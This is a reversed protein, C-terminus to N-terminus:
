KARPKPQMRSTNTNAVGIALLGEGTGGRSRRANVLQNNEDVQLANYHSEHAWLQGVETETEVPILFGDGAPIANGTVTIGSQPVIEAEHSFASANLLTEPM